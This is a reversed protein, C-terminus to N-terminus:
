YKRIKRVDDLLQRRRRRRVARVETIQGEISNHLLCNRRLIHGFWNSKRSPINNLLTRMEGISEFVENTVKEPWKVKEMRRQWWM